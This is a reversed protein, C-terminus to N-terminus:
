EGKTYDIKVVKTVKRTKGEEKYYILIDDGAAWTSEPLSFYETPLTFTTLIRQRESYISFINKARDIVPFKKLHGEEM